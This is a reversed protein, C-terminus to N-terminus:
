EKTALKVTAKLELKGGPFYPSGEYVVEAWAKNSFIEYCELTQMFLSRHVITDGSLSLEVNVGLGAKAGGKMWRDSLHIDVALDIVLMGHRDRQFLLGMPCGAVLGSAVDKGEEGDWKLLEELSLTEKLEWCAESPAVGRNRGRAVDNEALVAPSVRHALASQLVRGLLGSKEMLSSQSVVNGLFDLTMHHYHLLPAMERFLAQREESDKVHESRWLWTVLLHYAENELQLQLAESALLRKFVCLPLLLVEDCLVLDENHIDVTEPFMGAVPGLLQALADVGRQLLALGEESAEEDREEIGKVLLAMMRERAHLMGPHDAMARPLDMELCTILASFDLGLPLSAVVQDVAEVFELSDARAALRLRTDFPLLRGNEHTYSDSYSLKILLKLDQLAQKDEVTLEVQREAAEAWEGSLSKDFYPSRTRLVLSHAKIDTPESDAGQVSVRIVMDTHKGEVFQQQLRALQVHPHIPPHLAPVL